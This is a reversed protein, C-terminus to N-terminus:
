TPGCDNLLRLKQSRKQSTVKKKIKNQKKKKIKRNTFPSKDYSQALDSGKERTSTGSKKLNRVDRPIEIKSM